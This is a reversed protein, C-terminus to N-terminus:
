WINKLRENVEGNSVPKYEAGEHQINDTNISETKEKSKQANQMRTYVDNIEKEVIACIYMFKSMEDKFTKGYVAHLIKVKCIKFTNLIIDYSYEAKNSIYKNEILKGVKLGKMRLVLNTPIKQNDDYQLIEKKVYKYLNDWQEKELPTMKVPAPKEKKETNRM